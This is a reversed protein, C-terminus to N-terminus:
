YWFHVGNSSFKIKKGTLALSIKEDDFGGQLTVPKSLERLKNSISFKRPAAGKRNTKQEIAMTKTFYKTLYWTLAQNNQQLFRSKKPHM